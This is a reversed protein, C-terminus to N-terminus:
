AFRFVKSCCFLHKINGRQSRYPMGQVLCLFKSPWCWCNLRFGIFVIVVVNSLICKLLSNILSTEGHFTLVLYSGTPDFGPHASCGWIMKSSKSMIFNWVSIGGFLYILIWLIEELFFNQL